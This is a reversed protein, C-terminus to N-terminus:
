QQDAGLGGAYRCPIGQGLYHAKFQPSSMRVCNSCPNQENCKVKRARCTECARSARIRKRKQGVAPEPSNGDESGQQLQTQDGNHNSPSQKVDMERHELLCSYQYRNLIL